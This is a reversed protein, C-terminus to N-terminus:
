RRFPNVEIPAVVPYLSQKLFNRTRQVFAPQEDQLGLIPLAVLLPAIRALLELELALLDLDARVM